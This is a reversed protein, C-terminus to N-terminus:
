KIITSYVRTPNRKKICSKLNAIYNGNKYAKQWKKMIAGGYTKIVLNRWKRTIRMWTKELSKHFINKNPLLSKNNIEKKELLNHFFNKIYFIHM